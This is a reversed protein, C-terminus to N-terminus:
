PIQLLAKPPLGLRHPHFRPSYGGKCTHPTDVTENFENFRVQFQCVNYNRHPGRGQMQNRPGTPTSPISLKKHTRGQNLPQASLIDSVTDVKWCMTVTISTRIFTARDLGIIIVTHCKTQSRYKTQIRM